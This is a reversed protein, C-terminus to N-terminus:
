AVMRHRVGEPDLAELAKRQVPDAIRTNDAAAAVTFPFGTQDVVDAVTAWPHCASLTAGESGVAFMALNTLLPTTRGRDRTSAVQVRPVLNRKSQRPVLLIPRKVFRRLTAAGAVGPFKYTPRALSGAASMNTDGRADIEAASFFMVDVRGRRAHDFLDPISVNGRRGDLYRLSETSPDPHEIEPDLAGVCALYTLNPAHTRRALAIALIPLYSAVGTAIVDGDRIQRALAAVVTDARPVAARPVDVQSGDVQAVRSM